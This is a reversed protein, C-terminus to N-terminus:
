RFHTRFRCHTRPVARLVTQYWRNKRCHYRLPGAASVPALTTSVATIQCYGRPCIGHERQLHTCSVICRTPCVVSWYAFLYTRFALGRSQSRPLYSQTQGAPCGSDVTAFRLLERGSLFPHHIRNEMTWNENMITTRTRVSVSYMIMITATSKVQQINALFDRRPGGQPAKERTKAEAITCNMM